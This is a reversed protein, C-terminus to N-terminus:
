FLDRSKRSVTARRRAMGTMLYFGNIVLLNIMLAELLKGFREPYHFNEAYVINASLESLDDM